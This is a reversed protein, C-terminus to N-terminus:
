GNVTNTNVRVQYTVSGSAGRAIAGLDWFLSNGVRTANGSASNTVYTVASPFVDSVQAKTADNACSVKNTYSITYTIIAGASAQAPGSKFLALDPLGTAAAPKFIQLTSLSPDGGLHLSSGSNVHAGAALRGRFEVFGPSRDTVNVTFDYSWTGSNAPANLAPAATIVVNPSAMFGSLDEIGPNNGNFHDFFVEIAQGTVPGGTFYVRMPIYDCDQWGQLNSGIWNTDGKSQGQLTSSFKGAAQTPTLGAALLIWACLTVHAISGQGLWCMKQQM